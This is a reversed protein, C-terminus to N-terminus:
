ELRTLFLLLRVLSPLFVDEKSGGVGVGSRVVATVATVVEAVVVERREAETEETTVTAAVEEAEEITEIEEAEATVVVTAVEQTDEVLETEIIACLFGFPFGLSTVVTGETFSPTCTLPLASTM